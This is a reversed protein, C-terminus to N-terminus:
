ENILKMGTIGTIYWHYVLSIGTIGNDKGGRSQALHPPLTLTWESARAVLGLGRLGFRFWAPRFPPEYMTTM